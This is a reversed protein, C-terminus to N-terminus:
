DHQLVLHKWRSKINDIADALYSSNEYIYDLLIERTEKKEDKLNVEVETDDSEDAQWSCVIGAFTSM